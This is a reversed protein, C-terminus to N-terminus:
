NKKISWSLNELRELEETMERTMNVRLSRSPMELITDEDHVNVQIPINGKHKKCLTRIRSIMPENINKLLVDINIQKVLKDRLDSLLDIKKVNLRLVEKQDRKSYWGGIAVHVLVFWDHTLYSKFKIYDDKFLVFEHSGKYDELVFRGYPSGTKSTLHSASTVIGAIRTEKRQRIGDLDELISTDANAFQDIEFKFDDLPHGSIYVGVVEKERNLQDLTRWEPAPPIPPEPIEAEDSEGFLSAQASNEAEQLANGYRIAKEIITQGKEDEHFYQARHVGEFSDFSGAVALGEFNKKNVTRLDLRSAFHFISNFTGQEKREAVIAEVANVGVGKIAGMGFRIEEKSNVTFKYESENVDPGLVPMGMRKCEEMFFTVKKIDNMNHTLVSAMYEAPYNAKLYATQFAVFSYAASHSRNFGYEAFKMMVDFIEDAKEADIQNHEKCGDRFIVRQQEMVDMKKKGMARRLIDAAGLSYGALIQATQMIQEQYVMIGHTDKLIPELKEHPYEVDETGQKRKIFTDIFQLPGPRYLANMAILDEINNPILLRLNKQMGVSEFQFTGNTEGKQYLEFTKEDDLPIEDPNIDVGHRQKILKIADKMITLTKLGLFDMKLLGASEVVSNDFQTVLLDSDKATAVPIFERIDQPTIIIGCAHIGTNRVSGELKRAQNLIRGEENEQESIEILQKVNALDDGNFEKKLEEATRGFIHKFKKLDPVLKSIRDADSLPLDMVRAVDRISSKAAMTGYTIIQAVQTQGYKNVVYDIIKDRGEDDFDIDIDPMSVREPNLFREFLLKYKIPDINTIGVSYAVASGAASGRGPGVWVDRKRAETTFDQVILFYGPFGMDKIVSLEFDIREKIEPTIEGYKKKAGEYTLHALYENEGEFDEPIEFKPLLIDRGLKFEEIKDVIESVTIIAEPLDKFLEKMEDGSKFYFEQNPMGYRFGRGYGIPMDQQVGDKVCLLIDHANADEKKQYFVDNAAFYKVKYKECFRLLVENVRREEELGHRLLEVYFDDGFLKHWYVFAEEAQKEGINLILDAVEGGLGGTTCILDEKYQEIVDRGVRPLGSYFGDIFGVSCLKSINHYGKENKAILVQRFRKDPADKTFQQKKYEDAVFFECGVIAKIGNIECEKVFHFVGMMNGFDTIAIAPMEFAAAQRVISKIDSTSQLISFQTHNHLHVFPYEKLLDKNENIEVKSPAAEDKTEPKIELDEPEYPKINLGILQFPKKNTEKFLKIYEDNSHLDKATFVGIRILELFCRTTAEVDASANHANDIKESFLKENLESLTPFKFSKGRGGPLQCFNTSSRMTDLTKKTMLGDDRDARAYEAGMVKVDFEINHGVAFDTEELAKKFEDMVFALPVGIKEARETSIGHIKEANFPITYGDPKIVYNKVEILEGKYDHLQWALQVVRPFSEFESVEAKWNEIKGTTETDFILYM